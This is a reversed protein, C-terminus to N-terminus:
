ILKRGDKFKLVCRLTLHHPEGRGREVVVSAYSPFSYINTYLTNSLINLWMYIYPSPRHIMYIYICINDQMHINDIYRGISIEIYRHRSIDFTRYISIDITRNISLDIYTRIISTDIYRYISIDIYRYISSEIYRYISMYIYIYIYFYFFM